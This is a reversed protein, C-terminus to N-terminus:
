NINDHKIIAFQKNWFNSNKTISLNLIYTLRSNLEAIKKLRMAM